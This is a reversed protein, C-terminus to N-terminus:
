AADDSQDSRAAPAPHDSGASGRGPPPPPTSRRAALDAVPAPPTLAVPPTAPEPAGPPTPPATVAGEGRARVLRHAWRAAEEAVIPHIEFRVLRQTTTAVDEGLEALGLAM